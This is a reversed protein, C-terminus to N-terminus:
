NEHSRVPSPDSIEELVNTGSGRRSIWQFHEVIRFRGDDLTFLQCQSSGGDVKGNQEVQAYRFEITEGCRTGVLYGLQVAGGSYRASITKGTQAFEFVTERGIRGQATTVRMRTGELSRASSPDRNPREADSILLRVESLAAEALKAPCGWYDFIGGRQSNQGCIVFLGTGLATKLHSALWGVFGSNDIGAPFHFCFIRVLELAPDSSAVLQSWVEGDRVHALADPSLHSAADPVAVETFAYTGAFVELEATALVQLLRQHTQRPTEKSVYM